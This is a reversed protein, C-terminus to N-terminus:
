AAIAIIGIVGALAVFKKLPRSTPHRPIKKLANPQPM